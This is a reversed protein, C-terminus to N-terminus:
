DGVRVFMMASRPPVRWHLITGDPEVHMPWGTRVEKYEGKQLTTRLEKIEYGEAAKNVVIFRDEGRQWGIASPTEIRWIEPRRATGGTNALCLNHFRIGAAIIPEGYRDDQQEDPLTNMDTFVYPFGDERGFLYTYALYVDTRDLTKAGEDWGVGFKTRGDGDEIGRDFNQGRDIDHNRVFTVAKVGDLARDHANPDKLIRLDGGFAFAARMTATLPFDYYDMEPITVYDSFESPRERIIEGFAYKGPAASLVDPYFGTEIHVAADFRFGDAGLSALKKLYNKAVERVHGDETKLDALNFSLWCLQVTNGGGIGCQDHFHHRDFQPFSEEVILNDELRVFPPNPQETVDVTHNAVVDVIIQIDNAAAVDNMQKFEAETGLPGGITAFDVPQYRGWWQWVVENSKQPPSVHIHSYGLDRLEPIVARIDNFTWNFLQVIVNRHEPGPIGPAVGPVDAPVTRPSLLVVSLLCWAGARVFSRIM